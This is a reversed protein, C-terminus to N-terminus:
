FAQSRFFSLPRCAGYVPNSSDAEFFEPFYELTIELM